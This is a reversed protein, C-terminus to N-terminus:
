KYIFYKRKLFIYIHDLPSIEGERGTPTSLYRFRIECSRGVPRFRPPFRKNRREPVVGRPVTTKNNHKCM